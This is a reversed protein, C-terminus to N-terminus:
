HMTELESWREIAQELESQKGTLRDLVPQVKDFPQTYFDPHVTQEELDAVEASVEPMDDRTVAANVGPIALAKSTDISRIRAHAHPSRLIKGVLMGPLHIDASYRARGTVKDLGDHRIPRTGVVKFQPASAVTTTTSDAM